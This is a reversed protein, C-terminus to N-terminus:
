SRRPRYGSAVKGPIVLPRGDELYRTMMTKLDQLSVGHLDCALAGGAVHSKRHPTKLVFEYNDRDATFLLTKNGFVAKALLVNGDEAEESSFLLLRAATVLGEASSCRYPLVGEFVTVKSQTIQKDQSVM